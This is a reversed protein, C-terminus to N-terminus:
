ALCGSLRDRGGARPRLSRGSSSRGSLPFAARLDRRGVAVSLIVSSLAAGTNPPLTLAPDIYDLSSIGITLTGGEKAQRRDAQPADGTSSAALATGVVVGVALGLLLSAM